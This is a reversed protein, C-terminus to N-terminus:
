GASCRSGTVEGQKNLYSTVSVRFEFNETPMPILLVHVVYILPNKATQRRAKEVSSRRSCLVHCYLVWSSFTM